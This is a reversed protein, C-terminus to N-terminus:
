PQRGVFALLRAQATTDAPVEQAPGFMTESRLMEEPLRSLGMLTAETAEEPLTEDAGVSRALDWSHVLLDGTVLGAVAQKPMGGFAEAVGELNAPDSLAAALAPRIESWDQGPATGAGLVGGGTAQWQMVHDVLDRVTWGDCTTPKDWDDDGIAASVETWKQAAQGWVEGPGSM